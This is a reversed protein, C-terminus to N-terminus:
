IINFYSVFFNTRDVVTTRQTHLKIVTNEELRPMGIKNGDRQILPM